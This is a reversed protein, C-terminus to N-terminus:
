VDAVAERIHELFERDDNYFSQPPLVLVRSVSDAVTKAVFDSVVGTEKLALVEEEFSATFKQGAGLMLEFIVYQIAQHAPKRSRLQAENVAIKSGVFFDAGEGERRVDLSSATGDFPGRWKFLFNRQLSGCVINVNGFYLENFKEQIIKGDIKIKM